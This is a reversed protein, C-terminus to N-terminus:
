CDAENALAPVRNAIFLCDDVRTEGNLNVIQCNLRDLIIIHVQLNGVYLHTLVRAIMTLVLYEQKAFCCQLIQYKASFVPMKFLSGTTKGKCSLKSFTWVYKGAM